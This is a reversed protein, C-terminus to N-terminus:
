DPRSRIGLSRAPMLLPETKGKVYLPHLPEGQETFGLCHLPGKSALLTEVKEARGHLLGHNGWACIVQASRSQIGVLAEDNGEGVPSPHKKLVKPDTSRLAFLNGVELSGFHRGEFRWAKAFSICRRITPDLIHADAISPNLMIFALRPLSSDWVRGLVLRYADTEGFTAWGGTGMFPDSTLTHQFWNGM